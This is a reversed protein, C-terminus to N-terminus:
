SAKPEMNSDDSSEEKHEIKQKKQAPPSPPTNDSGWGNDFQASPNYNTGWAITHAEEM